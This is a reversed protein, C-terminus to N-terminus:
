FLYVGIREHIYDNLQSPQITLALSMENELMVRLSALLRNDFDSFPKNALKRRNRYLVLTKIARCIDKRSGSALVNQFQMKRERPTSEPFPELSPIEDILQNAETEDLLPILITESKDQPVYFRYDESFDYPFFPKMVLYPLEGMGFDKVQISEVQFIRGRKDLAKDGVQYPM